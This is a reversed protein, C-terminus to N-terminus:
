KYHALFTTASSGTLETENSQGPAFVCNGNFEGISILGTTGFPVLSIGDCSTDSDAQVVWRLSGDSNYYALFYAANSGLEILTEHEEGEGFTMDANLMGTVVAASNPFVMVDYAADILSDSEGMGATAWQLTGDNTYRAVFIDLSGDFATEEAEGSGFTVNNFFYGTVAVSKDPYVDVAFGENFGFESDTQSAWLLNGQEDFSAVFVDDAAYSFLEVSDPGTGFLISTAFLGTLM